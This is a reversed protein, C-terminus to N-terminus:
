AFHGPTGCTPEKILVPTSAAAPIGSRPLDPNAVTLVFYM